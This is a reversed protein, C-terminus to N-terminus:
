CPQETALEEVAAQRNRPAAEARAGAGKGVMNNIQTLRTVDSLGSHLLATEAKAHLRLLYARAKDLGLLTVYNTTWEPGADADDILWRTAENIDSAVHSAIALAAAYDLLACRTEIQADGSAAGMLVAAELLAGTTRSHRDRLSAVDLLGDNDAAALALAGLTGGHGCARALAACLKTQHLPPVTCDDTLLEFALALNAEGAMSVLSAGYRARAKSIWKSDDRVAAHSSALEIAAAAGLATPRSGRVAERVAMVVLAPLRQVACSAVYQMAEALRTPALGPIWADLVQQVDVRHNSCWSRFEHNTM